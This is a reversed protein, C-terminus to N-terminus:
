AVSEFNAESKRHLVVFRPNGLAASGCGFTFMQSLAPSVGDLRLNERGGERLSEGVWEEKERGRQHLTLVAVSMFFPTTATISKLTTVVQVM